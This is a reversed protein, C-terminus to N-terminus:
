LLFVALVDDRHIVPLFLPCPLRELSLLCCHLLHLFFELFLHWYCPCACTGDSTSQPSLGTALAAAAPSRDVGFSELSVSSGEGDSSAESALLDAVDSSAAAPLAEGLEAYDAESLDLQTVVFNQQHAVPQRLYGADDQNEYEDDSCDWLQIGHQRSWTECDTVM